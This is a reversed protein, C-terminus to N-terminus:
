DLGAFACAVQSWNGFCSKSDILKKEGKLDTINITWM